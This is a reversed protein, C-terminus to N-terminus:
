QPEEALARELMRESSSLVANTGKLHNRAAACLRRYRRRLQLIEKQAQTTALAHARGREKAEQRETWVEDMLKHVEEYIEGAKLDDSLVRFLKSSYPRLPIETM